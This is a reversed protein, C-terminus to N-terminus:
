ATKTTLLGYYVKTDYEITVEGDTQYQDFIEQAEQLMAGSGPEGPGPVYSSSLLRGKLGDLDFTQANDFIEMEYEVPGFFEDVMGAASRGHEVQEYDTGHERLLREYAALFPTTNRRRANWIVVVWGGPRLIRGFETQTRKVDFWHFAQGATVFDVSAGDLTTAEATGAVSTFSPYLELRNEGAERMEVNPEVGFVRNGNELFLESLIGTGSGVDAVVSASTLDCETELLTLIALPYSPRYRSYNGVRGSFRQTPDRM